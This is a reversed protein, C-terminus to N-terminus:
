GGNSLGEIRPQLAMISIHSKSTGKFTQIRYKRIPGQYLWILRKNTQGFKGASIYRDVSYTTGDVSYATAITPDDGLAVDGTIAVLELEHVIGDLAENYIMLTYFQWGIEVGFHSGVTISTTGLVPSTPDAFIWKNYCWVFNRARYTAPTALGSDLLFWVPTQVQQSSNYDYVLTRNPLHVYLFAHNEIFRCEVKSLSLQADTYISLITDIESTSIKYSAGNSALWVSCPENKGSGLMAIQDDTGIPFVCCAKKGIAGRAVTAGEVRQFPFGSGGVNQLVEITYRGVIQAQDRLKLLAVIPDPDSEASAYKLPNISLPNSLDTVGVFTGDTFMFYGDIWILDIPKGLDTDVVQQIAGNYYYYMSNGSIIGIRDFSYTLSVPLGDTGVDGIVTPFGNADVAVFKSGMVRYLNGFYNIGERDIGPCAAINFQILGEAPRLYGKSVGNDKPTPVLNRPYATGIRATNTVYVGNLIPIPNAM